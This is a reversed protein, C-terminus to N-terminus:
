KKNSQSLRSLLVATAQSVNLSDIKGCMPIYVQDDAIKSILPQIGQGESGMILLTQAPFEFNTLPQANDSIEATIAFYGAKQFKKVTEALNSVVITPVLESAGVSAKAASPTLSCGRNKSWIVADVGFCEAARLIAGLNQPDNINDLMLVLRHDEQLFQKLDPNENAKVQVVYSQHSDSNVLDYLKQKSVTKVKIGKSRAKEILEDAEKKATFFENVREPSNDLVTEVCNKGMIWYKKQM